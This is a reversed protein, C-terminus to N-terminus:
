KFFFYMSVFFLISFIQTVWGMISKKMSEDKHHVSDHITQFFSFPKKYKYYLFQFIDPLVGGVLGIATIYFTKEDRVFILVCFIIGVLLDLAILMLHLTSKLNNFVSKVTKTNSDLFGSVEYDRHPIMDLLYHSAVALGFGLAPNDPFLNAISAGVISHTSLIM